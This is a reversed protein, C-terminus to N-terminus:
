EQSLAVRCQSLWDLDNSPVVEGAPHLLATLVTGASQEAGGAAAEDDEDEDTIDLWSLPAFDVARPEVTLRWLSPAPAGEAAFADGGKITVGGCQLTVSASLAESPLAFLRSCDVRRCARARTVKSRLARRNCSSFTRM